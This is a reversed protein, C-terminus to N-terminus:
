AALRGVVAGVARRVRPKRAARERKARATAARRYGSARDMHDRQVQEVVLPSLANV